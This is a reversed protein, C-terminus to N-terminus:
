ANKWRFLTTSSVSSETQRPIQQPIYLRPYSSSEQIIRANILVNTDVNHIISVQASVLGLYQSDHFFILKCREQTSAAPTSIHLQSAAAAARLASGIKPFVLICITGPNDVIVPVKETVLNEKLEHNLFHATVRHFQRALPIRRTKSLFTSPQYVHRFM